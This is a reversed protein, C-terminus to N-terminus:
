RTGREWYSPGVPETFDSQAVLYGESDVALPLQPLPRTAPGFIVKGNDALDFTSQHCPCLMHHTTREYLSIPCGVHTCIKSYAIIGDVHWNDRGEAALIEEPLMRILMVPSKARENLRDPGHEPLDRYTAPMVNVLQGLEMQEPTIPQYTVDTLLRVGEAWVTNEKTDGPLPGLDRLLVIAPLPLLALAGLLSNRIMTRRGFGTEETGTNFSALTDERVDDQSRLPKRKEVIEPSTMLARSWQVAGVGILLFAMGLTIGLAFNSAQVEGINGTAEDGDIGFYIYAAISAVIFVSALIFMGAIQREARKAAKPEVDTYRPGPDHFGPDPIPDASTSRREVEGTQEPHDVPVHSDRAQVASTAEGSM